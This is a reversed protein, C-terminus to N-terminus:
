TLPQGTEPDLGKELLAARYRQEQQDQIRKARHFAEDSMKVKEPQSRTAISYVYLTADKESDFHHRDFVRGRETYFVTWGRRDKERELITKGNPLGTGSEFEESVSFDQYVGLERLAKRLERVNM